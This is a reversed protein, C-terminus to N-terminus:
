AASVGDPTGEDWWEQFIGPQEAPPVEGRMMATWLADDVNTNIRKQWGKGAYGRPFDIRRLPNPMAFIHGNRPDQALYLTMPYVM